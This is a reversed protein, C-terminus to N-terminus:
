PINLRGSRAAQRRILWIAGAGSAIMGLLIIWHNSYGIGSMETLLGAGFLLFSLDRKLLSTVVFGLGIAAVLFPLPAFVRDAMEPFTVMFTPVAVSCFLIVGYGILNRRKSDM